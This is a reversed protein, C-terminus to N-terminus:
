SESSLEYPQGNVFILNVKQVNPHRPSKHSASEPLQELESSTEAAVDRKNAAHFCAYPSVIASVATRTM